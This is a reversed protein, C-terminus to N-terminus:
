SVICLALFGRRAEGETEESEADGCIDGVRMFRDEETCEKVGNMRTREKAGLMRTCEKVGLM